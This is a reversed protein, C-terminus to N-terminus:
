KLPISQPFHFTNSPDYKRKVAMLRQANGGYYDIMYQPLNNYPFNVYSGQTVKKLYPFRKNLWQINQEAYQDDEWVTQFGIIYRANRYYFATESPCVCQIRGGMAYLTIAAYVSGKPPDAILSTLGLLTSTDYEEVAFRGTSKFKQSTPYSNEIRQIADFFSLYEITPQAGDFDLLPQLVEEVDDPSGYFLGRAYIATGEDPGNYMAATMTIRCDATELWDQWIEFFAAQKQTSTNPYYIEVFTVRDVKAPLRFTLSVVVGFNGDGGGQCAWFLDSNQTPSAVIIKGMDDVILLEELNDCGLGFCRASYGWGGGLAYGAAGVTPCSGGPFPYGLSSVYAYFQRFNVGGQVTVQNACKDISIAQMKSLDIVLVNNGTSYGEYNHRGSRIRLSVRYKRCWQVANSVDQPTKCFVIALPFKQISRNFEQRAVTYYPNDPTIVEGTLQTFNYNMNDIAGETKMCFISTMSYLLM